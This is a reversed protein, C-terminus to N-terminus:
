ISNNVEVLSNKDNLKYKLVKHLGQTTIDVSFVGSDDHSINDVVVNEGLYQNTLYILIGNNNTFVIFYISPFNGSTQAMITTAVYSSNYWVPAGKSAGNDFQIIHFIGNACSVGTTSSYGANSPCGSITTETYVGGSLTIMQSTDGTFNPIKANDLQKVPNTQTTSNSSIISDQASTNSTLPANSIKGTTSGNKNQCYASNHDTFPASCPSSMIWIVIVVLSVFVLAILFVIGSIAFKFPRGTIFFGIVALLCFLGILLFWTM